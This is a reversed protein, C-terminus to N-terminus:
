TTHTLLPLGADQVYAESFIGGAPRQPGNSLRGLTAIRVQDGNSGTYLAAQRAEQAMRAAGERWFRAEAEMRRYSEMLATNNDM